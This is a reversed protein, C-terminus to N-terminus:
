MQEFAVEVGPDGHDMGKVRPVVSLHCIKEHAVGTM